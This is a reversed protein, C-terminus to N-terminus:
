EHNPNRAKIKKAQADARLVYRLNAVSWPRKEGPPYSINLSHKGSAEERLNELTLAIPYFEALWRWYEDTTRRWRELEAMEKGAIKWKLWNMFM